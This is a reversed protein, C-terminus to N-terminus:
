RGMTDFALFRVCQEGSLAQVHARIAKLLGQPAHVCM